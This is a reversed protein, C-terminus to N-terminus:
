PQHHFPDGNYPGWADSPSACCPLAKIRDESTVPYSLLDLWRADDFAPMSEVAEYHINRPATGFQLVSQERFFFRFCWPQDSHKAIIIRSFAHTSKPQRHRLLFEM